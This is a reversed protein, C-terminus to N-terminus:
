PSRARPVGSGEGRRSAVCRPVRWSSVDRLEARLQTAQAEVHHFRLGLAGKDPDVRNPIGLLHLRREDERESPMTLLESPGTVRNRDVAGDRFICLAIQIADQM